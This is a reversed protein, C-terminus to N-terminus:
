SVEGPDSRLSETGRLYPHSIDARSRDTNVHMMVRVVLPMAWPVDLEQACILPVDTLGIARAAAAPFGSSIDPTATFLLSILDDSELENAAMMERLLEAVVALMETMSDSSLRTAGRIARVASM